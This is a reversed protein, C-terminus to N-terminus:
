TNKIGWDQVETLGHIEWKYFHFVPMFNLKVTMFSSWQSLLADLESMQSGASGKQRISIFMLVDM